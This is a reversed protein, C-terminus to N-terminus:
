VNRRSDMRNSRFKSMIFPTAAMALLAMGLLPRYTIWGIAIVTLSLSISFALNMIGVGAAVLERIIPLWDVLTTIISTLCGFGVFMLLWGGLRVGWTILTNQQQEKGFIEKPSLRGIYLMELVDGAVTQFPLLRHRIQRAIISVTDPQGM